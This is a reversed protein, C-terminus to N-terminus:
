VGVLDKLAKYVADCTSNVTDIAIDIANEELRKVVCESIEDSDPIHPPFFTTLGEACEVGYKIVAESIPTGAAALIQKAKEIIIDKGPFAMAEKKLLSDIYDAEKRLGIRDLHNALKILEKKM